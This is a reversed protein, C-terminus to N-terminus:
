CAHYKQISPTVNYKGFAAQQVFFTDSKTINLATMVKATPVLQSLIQSVNVSLKGTVM